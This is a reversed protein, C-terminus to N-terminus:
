FGSNQIEACQTGVLGIKQEATNGQGRNYLPGM